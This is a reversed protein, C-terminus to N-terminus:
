YLIYATSSLHVVSRHNNKRVIDTGLTDTYTNQQNKKGM